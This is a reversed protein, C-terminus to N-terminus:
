IPSETKSYWPSTTTDRAGTIKRRTNKGLPFKIAGKIYMHSPVSKTAEPVQLIPPCPHSGGQGTEWM